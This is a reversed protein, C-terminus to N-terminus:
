LRPADHERWWGYLWTAALTLQVVADALYIASIRGMGAYIIDIALLGLAQGLALVLLEPSIRRRYAATLLVVGSVGVLVAVTRVLWLDTKPGTVRQFSDIDVLPWVGTLLYYSGQVIAAALLVQRGNKLGDRM